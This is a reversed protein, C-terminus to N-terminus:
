PALKETWYDAAAAAASGIAVRNHAGCNPCAVEVPRKQEDPDIQRYVVSFRKGCNTCVHRDRTEPRMCDGMGIM